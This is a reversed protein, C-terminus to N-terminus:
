TSAQWCLVALVTWGMPVPLRLLNRSRAVYVAMLTAAAWMAALGRLVVTRPDLDPAVALILLVGGSAVAFITVIHWTVRIMRRTTTAPGVPTSSLGSEALAPLVWRLGITAHGVALGLTIVGALVLAVNM